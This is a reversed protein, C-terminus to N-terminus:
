ARKARPKAMTTKKAKAPKSTATRRATKRATQRRTTTTTAM